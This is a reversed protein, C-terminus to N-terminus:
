RINSLEFNEFTRGGGGLQKPKSYWSRAKAAITLLDRRVADENASQASADFLSIGAIISTGVIVAALVLLLLQQQGM